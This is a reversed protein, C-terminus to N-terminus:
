KAPAASVGGNNLIINVVGVADTITVKGDRNSDGLIGINLEVDTEAVDSDQCGDKTAYVTVHCNTTGALTAKNGYSVANGADFSYNWKYTVGETESEVTMEGNVIKITPTACKLGVIKKFNKWPAVAQYLGISADPVYLTAKSLSFGAFSISNTLPVSEAHCYVETLASCDAFVTQGISTVSSPITVSTLARCYMFTEDAISTVGDPITFSTLGTCNVFAAKGISTVSGPINITILGSCGNFAYEGISTVTNPIVTNKCGAILKNDITNIIANCGERSDYVDNDSEVVMSALGTCDDFVKTGISTVSNPITISTLLRCSFFAGNGIRTVGDEIIINEIATRYGFWPMNNYPYDDMQGTGSITLTHTAEEYSWTVNNGCSGSDDAMAIIPLLMMVLLLLQKKM